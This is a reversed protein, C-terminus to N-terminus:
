GYVARLMKLRKEELEKARHREKAMYEDFAALDAPDELDVRYYGGDTNIICDGNKNALAIRRRLDRDAIREERTDTRRPLRNAHGTPIEELIIKM